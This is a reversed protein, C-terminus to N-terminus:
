TRTMKPCLNGVCKWINNVQKPLREPKIRHKQTIRKRTNNINITADHHLTRKSEM